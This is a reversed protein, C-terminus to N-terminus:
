SRVWKPIPRQAIIIRDPDGGAEAEEKRYLELDAKLHEPVVTSENTLSSIAGNESVAAITYELREAGTLKSCNCRGAPMAPENHTACDSSHGCSVCSKEPHDPRDVAIGAELFADAVVERVSRRAVGVMQNWLHDAVADRQEVTVGAEAARVREILALVVKPRAAAIYVADGGSVDTSGDHDSDFKVIYRRHEPHFIGVMDVSFPTNYDVEWTGGIAAEATAELEDLNIDITM